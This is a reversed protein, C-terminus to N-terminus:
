ATSPTPTLASHTHQTHSLLTELRGCALDTHPCARLSQGEPARTQALVVDLLGEVEGAREQKRSPIKM